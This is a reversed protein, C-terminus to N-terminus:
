AVLHDIIDDSATPDKPNVGYENRNPDSDQCYFVLLAIAGIIPVLIILLWWGSRNTDHLRRIGVALGPLFAIL